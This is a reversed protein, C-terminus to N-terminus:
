LLYRARYVAWQWFRDGWPRRRWEKVLIRRAFRVDHEFLECMQQVFEASRIVASLECNYEISRYDLNTSGIVSIQGDIVMSKAHLVVAQREYVQVGATLLEEYFARAAILLMRVDSRAPLMLRVTVGRRAAARCLERVLEDDPAFYAMTMHISKRAERLLKLLFPRLPSSMTPASAIVGLEGASGDLNQIYQTKGIRGGQSAYRWTQAFSRLFMHAGPGRIGVANDRWLDAEGAPTSSTVVWSGAYQRGVNLGGLGAIDDDIVLLKRHDRNIPRWGYHCDWPRIPHFEQLLVGARRMREFMRHESALSGVSDYIVFVRVGDRAKQALLEAFACGTDDDALIYVELCIRKTAAKIADYAAHLAEGDKYLQVRTGDTLEVPPPVCWGDDDSGPAINVGTSTGADGQQPPRRVETPGLTAPSPFLREMSTDVASAMHSIM